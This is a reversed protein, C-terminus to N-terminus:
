WLSECLQSICETYGSGKRARYFLDRGHRGPEEKMDDGWVVKVTVLRRWRGWAVVIVKKATSKDWQMGSEVSLQSSDGLLVSEWASDTKNEIQDVREWFM